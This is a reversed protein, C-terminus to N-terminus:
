LVFGFSLSGTDGQRLIEASLRWQRVLSNTIRTFSSLVFFHWIIIGIAGSGLVKLSGPQTEPLDLDM